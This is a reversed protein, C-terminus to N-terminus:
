HLRSKLFEEPSVFGATEGEVDRGFSSPSWYVGALCRLLLSLHLSNRRFSFISHSLFIRREEPILVDNVRVRVNGIKM